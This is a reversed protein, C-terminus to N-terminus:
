VILVLMTVIVKNLYYASECASWVVTVIIEETMVDPATKRM